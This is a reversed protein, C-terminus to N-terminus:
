QSNTQKSRRCSRMTKSSSARQQLPSLPFNHSISWVCTKFMVPESKITIEWKLNSHQSTRSLAMVLFRLSGLDAAASAEVKLTKACVVKFTVCRCVKKGYAVNVRETVCMWAGISADPATQPNLIEGSSVRVDLSSSGPSWFLLRRIPLRGAEEVRYQIFSSPNPHKPTPQHSLPERVVTIM